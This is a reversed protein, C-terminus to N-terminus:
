NIATLAHGLGIRSTTFIPRGDRFDIELFKKTNAVSALVAVTQRTSTVIVDGADGVYVFRGDSTHQLWGDKECDYLCPRVNGAMSGRLRIDGVQTPAADPLGSVDFVHVFGNPQDMVYLEREDPSLSIGHSPTSPVTTKPDWSFGQIPMTYLVRGTRINSVQFGLFGTATTFALTEAANITFPRVGDKLPGIKQVAANTATDAAELYNFNRGGMYVHSGDLSVVTNHPSRGGSIVGTDDGTAANVVYWNSDDSMEGDPMYITSGDPSIDMSDIGHSYSKTWEITNTALNLKLLSGNGNTGGDGGFSIYLMGTPPSAAVGKVGRVQPLDLTRVLSQQNDIDYIYMRQDTVVYEYHHLGVAGSPLAAGGALNPVALETDASSGKVNGCAVAALLCAPLISWLCRYSLRRLM